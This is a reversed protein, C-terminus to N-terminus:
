PPWLESLERSPVTVPQWGQLPNTGAGLLKAPTYKSFDLELPPRVMFYSPHDPWPREALLAAWKVAKEEGSLAEPWDVSPSGELRDLRNMPIGMLVYDDVAFGVYIVKDVLPETVYINLTARDFAGITQYPGKQNIHGSAILQSTTFPLGILANQIEDNPNRSWVVHKTQIMRTSRGARVYTAYADRASLWLTPHRPRESLRIVELLIRFHGLEDPNYERDLRVLFKANMVAKSREQRFEISKLREDINTQEPASQTWLYTLFLILICLGIAGCWILFKQRQAMGAIGSGLLVLAFGIIIERFHQRLRM